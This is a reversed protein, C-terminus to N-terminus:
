RSAEEIARSRAKFEESDIEGRAYREALISAARGRDATASGTGRGVTLVLWAIGAVVFVWFLVMALWGLGFGGGFGMGFMM